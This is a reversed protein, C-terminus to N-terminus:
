KKPAEVVRVNVFEEIPRHQGAGDYELFKEWVFGDIYTRKL